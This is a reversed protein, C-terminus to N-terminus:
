LSRLSHNKVHITLIFLISLFLNLRLSSLSGLSVL